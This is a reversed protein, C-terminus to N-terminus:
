LVSLKAAVAVARFSDPHSLIVDVASTGISGTVGLIVIRKM